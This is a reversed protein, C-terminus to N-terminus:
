TTLGLKLQLMTARDIRNFSVVYMQRYRPLYTGPVIGIYRYKEWQGHIGTNQCWELLSKTEDREHVIVDFHSGYDNIYLKM